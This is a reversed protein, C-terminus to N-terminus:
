LLGDPLLPYLEEGHVAFVRGDELAKLAAGAPFARLLSIRVAEPPGKKPLVRSSSEATVRSSARRWGLQDMPALIVTSEAVIIFLPRSTM